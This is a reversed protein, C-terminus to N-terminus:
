GTIAEKGPAFLPQSLVRKGPEIDKTFRPTGLLSAAVGRGKVGRNAFDELLTQLAQIPQLFPTIRGTDSQEYILLLHKAPM